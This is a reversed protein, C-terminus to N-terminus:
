LILSFKFLCIYLDVNALLHGLYLNEGVLSMFQKPSEAFLQSISQIGILDIYLSQQKTLQREIHFMHHM